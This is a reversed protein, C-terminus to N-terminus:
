RGKRAVLGKKYWIIVAVGLSDLVNKPFTKYHVFTARHAHSLFRELITIIPHDPDPDPYGCVSSVQCTSSRHQSLSVPSKPARAGLATGGKVIPKVMRKCEVPMSDMCLFKFAIKGFNDQGRLWVM